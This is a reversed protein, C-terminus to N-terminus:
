CDVVEGSGDHALVPIGNDTCFGRVREEYM